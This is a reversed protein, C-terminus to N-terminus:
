YSSGAWDGTDYTRSFDVTGNSGLDIGVTITQPTASLLLTNHPGQVQWAGAVPVGQDFQVGGQSSFTASWTGAPLAATLTSTGAVSTSTVVGGAVVTSHSIDVASLTYATDRSATHRTVGLSSSTFRTSVTGNLVPGDHGDNVDTALSANGDYTLRALPTQAVLSNLVVDAAVRTPSAETVTLTAPGTLSVLEYPGKCQSFTVTYVEGASLQGDDAGGSLQYQATGGGPCNVVQNAGGSAVVAQTTRLTAATSSTSEQSVSTASSSDAPASAVAQEGGPDAADESGGGGCAALAACALAVAAALPARPTSLTSLRKM